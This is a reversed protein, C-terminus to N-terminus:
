KMQQPRTTSRALNIPETSWVQNNDPLILEQNPVQENDPLSVSALACCENALWALFLITLYRYM